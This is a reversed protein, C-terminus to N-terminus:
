IDRMVNLGWADSSHGHRSRRRRQSGVSSRTGRWRFVYVFATSKRSSRANLRGSGGSYRGAVSSRSTPGSTANHSGSTSQCSSTSTNGRGRGCDLERPWRANSSPTVVPADAKLRELYQRFQRVYTQVGTLYDERPTSAVIPPRSPDPNGVDVVTRSGAATCRMAALLTRDPKTIGCIQVGVPLWIVGPVITLKRGLNPTDEAFCTKATRRRVQDEVLLHHAGMALLPILSWPLSLDARIVNTPPKWTELKWATALWPDLAPVFTMRCSDVHL